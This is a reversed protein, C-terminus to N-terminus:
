SAALLKLITSLFEDRRLPKPVVADHSRAEGTRTTMSLSDASATFRIIPVASNLSQGARIHRIVRDGTLIPMNQDFIMLDFKTTLAAELAARGDGVVTLVLNENEAVYGRVIDQNVEDDEALLIQYEM